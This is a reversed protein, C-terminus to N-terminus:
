IRIQLWATCALIGVSERERVSHSGGSVSRLRLRIDPVCVITSRGEINTFLYVYLVWNETRRFIPLCFLSSAAACLAVDHVCM